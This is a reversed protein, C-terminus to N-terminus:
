VRTSTSHGMPKGDHWDLAANGDRSNRFAPMFRLLVFGANSFHVGIRSSSTFSKKGPLPAPSPPPTWSSDAFPGAPVCQARRCAWPNGARGREEETYACQLQVHSRPSSKLHHVFSIGLVLRAPCVALAAKKWEKEVERGKAAPVVYSKQKLGM